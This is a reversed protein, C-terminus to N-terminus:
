RLARWCRRAVLVESKTAQWLTQGQEVGGSGKLGGAGWEGRGEAPITKGGFGKEGCCVGSRGLGLGKRQSHGLLERSETVM